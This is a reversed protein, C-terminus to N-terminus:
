LWDTHGQKLALISEGQTINHYLHSQLLDIFM